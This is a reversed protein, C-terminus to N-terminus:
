LHHEFFISSLLFLVSVCDMVRSCLPPFSCCINTLVVSSSVYSQCSDIDPRSFSSNRLEYCRLCRGHNGVSPLVHGGDEACSHYSLYRLKLYMSRLTSLYVIRGCPVVALAAHPDLQTLCVYSLALSVHEAISRSVIVAHESYVEAGIFTIWAKLDLPHVYSAGASTCAAVRRTMRPSGLFVRFSCVYALCLLKTCLPFSCFLSVCPSMSTFVSYFFLFFFFHRHFTAGREM